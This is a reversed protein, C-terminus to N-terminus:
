PETYYVLNALYIPRYCFQTMTTYIGVDTRVHLIFTKAFKQLNKKCFRIKNKMHSRSLTISLYLVRLSHWIWLGLLTYAPHEHGKRLGQAQIYIFRHPM